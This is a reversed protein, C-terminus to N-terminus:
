ETAPMDALPKVREMFTEPDRIEDPVDGPELTEAAVEYLEMNRLQLLPHVGVIPRRFLCASYYKSELRILVARENVFFEALYSPSAARVIRTSTKLHGVVDNPGNEEARTALNFWNGSKELDLLRFRMSIRVPRKPLKFPLLLHSDQPLSLKAERGREAPSLAHEGFAILGDPLGKEFTWRLRFPAEGPPPIVAAPRAPVEPAAAPEVAPAVAPEGESWAAYGVVGALALLAAAFGVWLASSGAVAGAKRSLARSAQGVQAPANSLQRLIQGALDPPPAYGSEISAVIAQPELLPAAAAVGAQALLTRLRQLAEELQLSITKQSLDMEQGIERQSLGAGYYLAVIQRYRQPLRELSRRLAALEENGILAEAGASSARVPKALMDMECSEERAEVHRKRSTRLSARAVIRLIWGRANGDPKFTSARTWVRLMAEQVAEAARDANGTLQFALNYAARDYRGYLESFAERDRGGAIALLLAADDLGERAASPADNMTLVGPDKGAHM